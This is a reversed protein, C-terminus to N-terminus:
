AGAQRSPRRSSAHALLAFAITIAILWSPDQVLIATITM